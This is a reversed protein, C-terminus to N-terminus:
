NTAHSHTHQHPTLTITTHAHTILKYSNHTTDTGTGRDVGERPGQACSARTDPRHRHRTHATTQSHLTHKVPTPTHARTPARCANQFLSPCTHETNTRVLARRDTRAVISTSRQLSCRATQSACGTPSWFARQGAAPRQLEAHSGAALLVHVGPTDERREPTWLM